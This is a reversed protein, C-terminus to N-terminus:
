TRFLFVFATITGDGGYMNLKLGDVIVSGQRTHLSTIYQM